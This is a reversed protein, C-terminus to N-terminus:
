TQAKSYPFSKQYLDQLTNMQSIYEEKLQDVTKGQPSIPFGTVVKIKGYSAPYYSYEKDSLISGYNEYIPVIDYNLAKAIHFAGTRLNSNFKNDFQRGGEAFIFLSLSNDKKLKGIVNETLGEPEFEKKLTKFTTDCFVLIGGIIPVKRAFDIAVILVPFHPLIRLTWADIFCQHNPVFIYNQNTLPALEIHKSRVFLWDLVAICRKAVRHCSKKSFFCGTFYAPVMGIAYSVLVFFYLVRNLM